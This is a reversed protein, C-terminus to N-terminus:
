GPVFPPKPALPSYGYRYNVDTRGVSTAPVRVRAQGPDPERLVNEVVQLVEPGGRRTDVVSGYTM